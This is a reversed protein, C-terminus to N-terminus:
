KIVLVSVKKNDYFDFDPNIPDLMEKGDVLFIYRYNGKVVPLTYYWRNDKDKNMKMPKWKTFDGIVSVESANVNLELKILSLEIVERDGHQSTKIEPIKSVIAKRVIRMPHDAWKELFSFYSSFLAKIIPIPIILFSFLVIIIVVLYDKKEFRKM